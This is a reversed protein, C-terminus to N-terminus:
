HFFYIIELESINVAYCSFALYQNFISPLLPYLDDESLIEKQLTELVFLTSEQLPSLPENMSLSMMYPLSADSNMLPVSVANQLVVSLKQFDRFYQISNISEFSFKSFKNFYFGKM